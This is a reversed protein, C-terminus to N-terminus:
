PDFDDVGDVGHANGGSGFDSDSSSEDSSQPQAEDESSSFSLVQQAPQPPGLPGNPARRAAMRARRRKEMEAAGKFKPIFQVVKPAPIEEASSNGDAKAESSDLLPNPHQSDDQASPPSAAQVDVKPIPVNSRSLRKSTSARKGTVRLGLGGSRGGMITQTYRLKAAPFGAPRESEDESIQPSTTAALEPWREPDALSAHTIYPNAAYSPDFAVVRPGYIDDVEKLYALRITHILFSPPDAAAASLFPRRRRVRYRQHHVHLSSQKASNPRM